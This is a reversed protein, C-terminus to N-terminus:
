KTGTVTARSCSAAVLYMSSTVGPRPRTPYRGSISHSRTLPHLLTPQATSCSTSVTTTDIHSLRQLLIWPTNSTASVGELFVHRNPREAQKSLVKLLLLDLWPERVPPAYDRAAVLVPKRSHTGKTYAGTSLPTMYKEKTQVSVFDNGDNEITHYANSASSFGPSEM